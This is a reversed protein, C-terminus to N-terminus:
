LVSLVLRERITVSLILTSITSVEGQTNVKIHPTRIMMHVPHERFHYMDGDLANVVNYFHNFLIINFM